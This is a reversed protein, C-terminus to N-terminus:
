SEVMGGVRWSNWRKGRRGLSSRRLIHCMSRESGRMMSMVQLFAISSRSRRNASDKVESIGGGGRRCMLRSDRNSARVM